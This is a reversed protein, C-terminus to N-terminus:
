AVSLTLVKIASSDVLMGGVRKTTYFSVNPKNTYPDRLVRTGMRDVITYARKFDGFLIANSDAAMTPMDENEEFKYGLITSRSGEALGPTWIYNGDSDKLKRLKRLVSKSFMWAANQRYGKKLELELDILNDATFDGATGSLIKQITGFARASDDQTSMAYALIGKPKNTGDGKLFADAERESFERAVEDNLWAEANFFIDDLATQTAAPNAYIEGMHATIQALKPTTTEPRPDTEGVWGSGAGGLNVLRKYEPTGITMGHCLQRMPSQARMLELISRDFEEPVAYGGDGDIGTQLAKMQLEALGEERGKRMFQLFAEKHESVEKGKTAGPRKLSALEAELKGKYDELEDLATNLKSVQENLKGKEQEVAELRKDNKSKFEEFKAGFAEIVEKVDQSDAAM